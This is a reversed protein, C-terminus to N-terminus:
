PLSLDARSGQVFAFVAQRLDVLRGHFFHEAGDLILLEPGPELSKHWESTEDVGVLEDASGQVILWPCQPQQTLGSAFRSVAPAVSVLGDVPM